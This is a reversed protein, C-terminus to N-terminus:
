AARGPRLLLIAILLTFSVLPAWSPATVAM